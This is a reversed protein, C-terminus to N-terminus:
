KCVRASDPGINPVHVVEVLLYLASSGHRWRVVANFSGHAQPRDPAHDEIHTLGLTSRSLVPNCFRPGFARSASRAASM